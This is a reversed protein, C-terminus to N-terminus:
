CTNRTVVVPTQFTRGGDTSRAVHLETGPAGDDGSGHHSGAGHHHHSASAGGKKDRTTSDLWGVYLTGDPALAINHFHHTTPIGADPNVTVTPSFTQGGDDSRAFRLDSAPFRRGEVRRQTIWVVYLSGDTGVAVQAPAQQHAAADGPTQNVRVP